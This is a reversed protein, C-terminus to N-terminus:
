NTYGLNQAVNPNANVESLPIPFAYKFSGYSPGGHTQNIINLVPINRGTRALDDFRFGEFCLEKRREKLINVLTAVTYTSGNRATAISNLQVLAGAPNTALLAEAYNLVIEEYRIVKIKDSFVGMTPYKGQNRLRGTVVAIMGVSNRVDTVSFEANVPFENLVQIDGYATGRYINAIGNIGNNDNALQSLEFISNSPAAAQSWSAQFGAAPIISFQGIVAASATLAIATDGFYTAVRSKIANVAHTSITQKTTSNLSVSMLGLAADLDAYVFQKCQDVTLRPPFQNAGKYEKVYPVGLSNMGGQGTVHQQGFVRLLDFHALARAALAEGKAQNIQQLNGTIGTANIVINANAVVRYAQQWINTAEATSSTLNMEGVTLFRGSNANAFVNDGRVEGCIIIDRGWYGSKSMRDYMGNLIGRVDSLNNVNGEVDLAQALTPELSEDSCSVVNFLVILSFISYIIKKM